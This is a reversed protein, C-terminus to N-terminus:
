STHCVNYSSGNGQAQEALSLSAASVGAKMGQETGQDTLM